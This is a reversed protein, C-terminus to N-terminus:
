VMQLRWSRGEVGGETGYHAFGDHLNQEFTSSQRPLYFTYLQIFSHHALQKVRCSQLCGAWSWVGEGFSDERTLYYAPFSHFRRCTHYSLSLPGVTPCLAHTHRLSSTVFPSGRSQKAGSRKRNSSHPETKGEPTAGELVDSRDSLCRAHM